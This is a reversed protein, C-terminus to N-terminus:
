LIKNLLNHLLQKPVLYNGDEQEFHEFLLDFYVDKAIDETNVGELEDETFPVGIKDAIDVQYVINDDEHEFGSVIGFKGDWQDKSNAKVKDGINFEPVKRVTEDEKEEIPRLQEFGIISMASDYFKVEAQGHLYDVKVIEVEENMPVYLVKNGRKIYTLLDLEPMSLHNLEKNKVPVLDGNDLAVHYDYNASSNLNIIEVVEGVRDPLGNLAKENIIALEGVEFRLM